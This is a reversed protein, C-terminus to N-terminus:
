NGAKPNEQVWTQKPADNQNARSTQPLAMAEKTAFLHTENLVQLNSFSDPVIM